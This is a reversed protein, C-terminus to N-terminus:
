LEESVYEGPEPVIELRGNRLDLRYRAPAVWEVVEEVEQQQPEGCYTCFNSPPPIVHQCNACRM